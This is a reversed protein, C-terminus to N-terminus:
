LGTNSTIIVMKEETTRQKERYTDSSDGGGHCCVSGGWEGGGGLNLDVGEAFCDCAASRRISQICSKHTQEEGKETRRGKGDEEVQEAPPHQPHQPPPPGRWTVWSWNPTM